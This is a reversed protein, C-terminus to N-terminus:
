MVAAQGTCDAALVAVPNEGAVGLHETRRLVDLREPRVEARGPDHHRRLLLEDVLDGFGAVAVDAFDDVRAMALWRSVPTSGSHSVSHRSRSVPNRFRPPGTSRTVSYTMGTGFLMM